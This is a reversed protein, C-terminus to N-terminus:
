LSPVISKVKETDVSPGWGMGDTEDIISQWAKLTAPDWKTADLEHIMPCKDGRACVVGERHYAACIRKKANKEDM